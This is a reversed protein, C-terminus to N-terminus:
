LMTLAQKIITTCETYSVHGTHRSFTSRLFIKAPRGQSVRLRVQYGDQRNQAARRSYRKHRASDVVILIIVSKIDWPPSQPGLALGM